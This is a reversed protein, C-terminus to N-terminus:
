FCSATKITLFQIINFIWNDLQVLWMEPAWYDCMMLPQWILCCLWLINGDRCFIGNSMAARFGLHNLAEPIPPGERALQNEDLISLRSMKLRYRLLFGRWVERKGRLWGPWWKPQRERSLEVMGRWVKGKYKINETQISNYSSSMWWYLAKGMIM